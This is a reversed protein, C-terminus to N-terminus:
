KVHMCFNHERTYSVCSESIDGVSVKEWQGTKKDMKEVRYGLIENGGDDLPHKWSIKCSEALVNTVELPGQPRSPPALVM